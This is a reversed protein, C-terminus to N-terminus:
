LRVLMHRTTSFIKMGVPPLDKSSAPVRMVIAWQPDEFIKLSLWKSNKIDEVKQALTLGDQDNLHTMFPDHGLFSLWIRRVSHAVYVKSNKTTRM